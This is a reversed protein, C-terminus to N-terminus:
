TTFAIAAFKISRAIGMCCSWTYGEGNNDDRGLEAECSKCCIPEAKGSDEAPSAKQRKAARDEQDTAGRRHAASESM